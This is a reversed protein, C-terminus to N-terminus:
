NRHPSYRRFFIAALAAILVAALWPLGPLPATQATKPTSQKRAPAPDAPREWELEEAAGVGAEPVALCQARLERGSGKHLASSFPDTPLTAMRVGDRGNVAMALIAPAEPWLRDTLVVQSGPKLWEPTRAFYFLRLALPAPAVQRGARLEVQPDYLPVVRLARGDIAVGFPEPGLGELRAAYHSVEEANISWDHDRDLRRREAMARMDTFTLEVEIDINVPDVTLFVRHQVCDGLLQHASVTVPCSLALLVSCWYARFGAALSGDM